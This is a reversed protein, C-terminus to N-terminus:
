PATESSQESIIENVEEWNKRNKFDIKLARCLKLAIVEKARDIPLLKEPSIMKCSTMIEPDFGCPNIMHFGNLNNIYNLASGHLTANGKLALGTSCIKSNGVWIGTETGLRSEGSINLEQMFEILENHIVGILTRANLNLDKLNLIFYSVIQGPNHYTIGGGREVMRIHQGIAVDGKDRHIGCTYVDNHELILIAGELEGQNVMENLKRQAILADDYDVIGEISVFGKM